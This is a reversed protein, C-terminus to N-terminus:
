CVDGEPWYALQWGGSETSPRSLTIRGRVVRGAATVDWCDPAHEALEFTGSEVRIVHGRDDSLPGEYDLYSLRHDGLAEASVTNTEAPALANEACEALPAWDRPLRALAWTRLIDGQEFMLDWHSARPLGASCAHYLLVFRPM